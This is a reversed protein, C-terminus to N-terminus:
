PHYEFAGIVERVEDSLPHFKDGQESVYLQLDRLLEQPSNLDAETYGEAGILERMASDDMIRAMREKHYAFEDDKAALLARTATLRATAEVPSIDM